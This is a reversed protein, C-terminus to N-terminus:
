GEEDESDEMIKSGEMVAEGDEPEDAEGAEEKDETEGIEKRFQSLFFKLVRGQDMRRCYDAFDNLRNAM